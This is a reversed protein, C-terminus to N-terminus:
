CNTANITTFHFLEFMLKSDDASIGSDDASNPSSLQAANLYSQSLFGDRRHQLASHFRKLLDFIEVAVEGTWDSDCADDRRTDADEDDDDDDDDHSWSASMSTPLKNAPPGESSEMEDFLSADRSRKARQASRRAASAERSRRDLKSALQSGRAAVQQGNTTRRTILMFENAKLRSKNKLRLEKLHEVLQSRKRQGLAKISGVSGAPTDQQDLATEESVAVLKENLNIMEELENSLWSSSDRLENIEEMLESLKGDKENLLNELLLIKDGSDGLATNM